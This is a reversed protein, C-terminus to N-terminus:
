GVEGRIRAWAHCRASKYERVRWPCKGVVEEVLLLMAVMAVMAGM